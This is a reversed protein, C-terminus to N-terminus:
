NYFFDLYTEPGLIVSLPSFVCTKVEEVHVGKGTSDFKAGVEISVATEFTM